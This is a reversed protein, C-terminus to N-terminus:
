CCRYVNTCNFLYCFKRNKNRLKKWARKWEGLTFMECSGQIAHCMKDFVNELHCWCVFVCMCMHIDAGLSHALPLSRALSHRFGSRIHFSICPLLSNIKSWLDSSTDTSTRVTHTHAHSTSINIKFCVGNGKDPCESELQNRNHKKKLKKEKKQRNFQIRCLQNNITTQVAM